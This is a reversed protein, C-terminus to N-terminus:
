KWICHRNNNGTVAGRNNGGICYITGLETQITREQGSPIYREYGFSMKTPDGPRKPPQALPPRRTPPEGPITIPGDGAQAREIRDFAILPMVFCILIRIALKTM